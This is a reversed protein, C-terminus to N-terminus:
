KSLQDAYKIIRYSIFEKGKEDTRICKTWNNQADFDDFRFFFKRHAGLHYDTEQILLNNQDYKYEQTMWSNEFPVYISIKSLNGNKDYKHSIDQIVDDKPDYIFNKKVQGAANYILVHKNPAQGFVVKLKHGESDKYYTFYYDWTQAYLKTKTTDPWQPKPYHKDYGKYFHQETADGKEDYSICSFNTDVAGTPRLFCDIDTVSVVRGNIKENNFFGRVYQAHVWATASIFFLM